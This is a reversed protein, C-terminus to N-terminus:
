VAGYTSKATSSSFSSAGNLRAREDVCDDRASDTVRRRFAVVGIFAASVVVAVVVVGPVGDFATISTAGGGGLLNLGGGGGGSFVGFLTPAAAGLAASASGQNSRKVDDATYQTGLVENAKSLGAEHGVRGGVDNAMRLLAAPSVPTDKSGGTSMTAAPDDADRASVAADKTEKTTPPAAKRAEESDAGYKAVIADRAAQSGAQSAKARGGRRQVRRRAVRLRWRRMRIELRLKKLREREEASVGLTASTDDIDDMIDDLSDADEIEQMDVADLLDDDEEIGCNTDEEKTDEASM